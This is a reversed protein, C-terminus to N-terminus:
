RAGNAEQQAALSFSKVTHPLTSILRVKKAPKEIDEEESFMAQDEEGLDATSKKLKGRKKKKPEGEDGSTGDAKAKKSKKPKKEREAEDDSDM